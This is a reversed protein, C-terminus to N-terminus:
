RPGPASAGPKLPASRSSGPGEVTLGDDVPKAGGGTPPVVIGRAKRWADLRARLAALRAPQAAALDHRESPDAKVDFMEYKGTRYENVLKLDGERMADGAGPQSATGAIGAFHWFLTRSAPTQSKLIPLFSLGDIPQDKPLAAGAMGAFTPYYDATFTPADTTGPRTVGPVYVIQPVRLGGEYLTAKGERLPANDAVKREGGNDSLFVVVTNGDMKLEHLTDLLRGFGTDIHELMAALVPNDPHGEHRPDLRFRALAAEGHKAAYKREYKAVTDPPADLVTHVAYHALYLFFPKDPTQAARRLVGVAEENMRDVLFEDPKGDTITAIKDYPFVYDGDGIGKTETAITEQFGHARPTGVQRRYRSDLHWKGILTTHYGADSLLRPLAYEKAPDLFVPSGPNLFTNIGTRVPYKGTMLSSRTPSCVPMAYASTFRLSKKAFGDIRPTEDFTNGYCGLERYGLDDALVFLINPHRPAPHAALALLPIM